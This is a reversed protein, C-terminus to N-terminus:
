EFRAIQKMGKLYRAEGAPTLTGDEYQYNRHGWKQGKIGFHMLYNTGDNWSYM